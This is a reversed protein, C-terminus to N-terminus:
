KPDGWGMRSFDYAKLFIHKRKIPDFLKQTLEAVIETCLRPIEAKSGVKFKHGRFRFLDLTDHVVMPKFEDKTKDVLSWNHFREFVFFSLVVTPANSETSKLDLGEVYLEFRSYNTALLLDPNAQIAQVVHTEVLAKHDGDAKVNVYIPLVPQAVSPGVLRIGPIALLVGVVIATMYRKPKM